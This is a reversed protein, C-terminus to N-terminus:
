YKTAIIEICDGLGLKNVVYIIPRCLISFLAYLFEGFRTKPVSSGKTAILISGLLGHYNGCYRVERIVFGTNEMMIKLNTDSYNYVHIPVGLYYWYKKFIRSWLGCTNPVGICILGGPKLLNYMKTLTERPNNIHEFSHNSRIFDFSNDEYECDVLAGPFIEIGTRSQGLSAASVSIECGKVQYGFMEMNSLWEGTGCGVDLIKADRSLHPKYCSIGLLFSTIWKRFAGRKKGKTFDIYAYYDKTYYTDLEEQELMPNIFYLGCRKCEWVEFDGPIGTHCDRTVYLPVIKDSGCLVCSRVRCM